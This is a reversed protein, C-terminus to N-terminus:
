NVLLLRPGVGLYPAQSQGLGIFNTALDAALANACDRIVFDLSHIAASPDTRSWSNPNRKPRLDETLRESFANPLGADLKCKLVRVEGGVPYQAPFNSGLLAGLAPSIM